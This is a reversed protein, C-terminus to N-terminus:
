AESVVDTYREALNWDAGEFYVNMEAQTQKKSAVVKRMIQDWVALILYSGNRVLCPLSM